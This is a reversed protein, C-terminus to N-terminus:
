GGGGCNCAVHCQPDEADSTCTRYDWTLERAQAGPTDDLTDDLTDSVAALLVRTIGGVVVEDAIINVKTGHLQNARVLVTGAKDPDILGRGTVMFGSLYTAKSDFDKEKVVV